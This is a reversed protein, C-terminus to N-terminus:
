AEVAQIDLIEGIYMRHFDGDPYCSEVIDKDEFSSAEQDQSYLKKCIFTLKAEKYCPVELRKELTLGSKLIKDEDRGSHRGFYTLLEHNPDDFFSLSFTDSAEMFEFTYRQPRVFIFAVNKRWLVGVGGWSCTMGNTVGDKEASLLLWQDGILQFPSQSFEKPNISVIKENM